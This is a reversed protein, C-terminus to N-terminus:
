NNKLYELVVGRMPHDAALKKIAENQTLVSHLTIGSASLKERAGQERDILVIAHSVAIDNEKLQAFTELTSAGSTAVDEIILATDFRNGVIERKDGHDKAGEKRPTIVPKKLDRAVGFGLGLAGYPVAAISQVNDAGIADRLKKSMLYSATELLKPHSQIARADWYLPSMAGSKLKFWTSEDAGPALKLIGCGVLDEVFLESMSKMDYGGASAANIDNKWKEAAQGPTLGNLYKPNTLGSSVPYVANPGARKVFSLDGGQKGFGPALFWATNEPAYGNELEAARINAASEPKTCGVVLGVRAPDAKRVELAMHQYVQLGESYLNQIRTDSNSTSALAFVCINPDADLYPKITDTQGMYPNVIVVEPHFNAIDAVVYRKQTDAIDGRKMDLIRVLEPYKEKAYLMIDALVNRAGNEYFPLNPKIGVIHPACADVLGKLFDLNLQDETPDLGLIVRSNKQKIQESLKQFAHM